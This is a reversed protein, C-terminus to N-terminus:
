AYFTHIPEPVLGHRFARDFLLDVAQRGREGADLSLDNVYRSVYEDLTESTHNGAFQAAWELAEERHGLAYAISRKLDLAIKTREEDDIDRRIVMATLAIPLGETEEGWWHGLDVVRVLGHKRYTIQDENILVGSRIKNARIMLSIHTTPMATLRLNAKPLWLRLATAATHHEAPVAVPLGQVESARIPTRSVLLPGRHDGFAAGCPLLLYRDQVQPYAGFSITTVDHVGGKAPETLAEADGRSFKYTRDETDVKDNALGYIMFAQDASAGYALTVVGSKRRPMKPMPPLQPEEPGQEEEASPDEPPPAVEAPPAAPSASPKAEVDKKPPAAKAPAAPAKKKPVAKPSADKKPGAKASARAKATAAKKKATAAKKKAAAKKATSAKKKAAAKKRAPAKKKPAARQKAASKKDKRKPAAKKKAASRKAAKKKASAKKKSSKKAAM